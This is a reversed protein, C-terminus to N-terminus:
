FNNCNKEKNVVILTNEPIKKFISQITQIIILKRIAASSLVNQKLSKTM